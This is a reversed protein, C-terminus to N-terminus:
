RAQRRAALRSDAQQLQHRMVKHAALVSQVSALDDIQTLGPHNEQGCGRRVFQTRALVGLRGQPHDKKSSARAAQM